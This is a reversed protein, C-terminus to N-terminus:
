EHNGGVLEAYSALYKEATAGMDFKELARLRGSEGLRKALERDSLLVDIKSALEFIDGPQFLFGDVSDRVVEPLGGRDAVIVPRANMMAEIAVLGFPERWASPVVIMRAKDIAAQLDGGEVWGSFVVRNAVGLVSALNELARRMPGDGCIRLIADPHRNAVLQMASILSGCGKAGELRGMFLIEEGLSSADDVSTTGNTITSFKLELGGWHAMASRKVFDSICAIEGVRSQLWALRALVESTAPVGKVENHLTLLLPASSVKALQQLFVLDASAYNHFHVVDPRFDNAIGNVSTLMQRLQTAPNEVERGLALRVVEYDQSGAEGPTGTAVLVEHGKQALASSLNHVFVERGGQVPLFPFAWQLIRM